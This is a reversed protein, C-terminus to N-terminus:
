YYKINFYEIKKCLGKATSTNIIAGSYVCVCLPVCSSMDIVLQVHAAWACYIRQSDCQVPEAPGHALERVNMVHCIVALLTSLTRGNHGVDLFVYIM